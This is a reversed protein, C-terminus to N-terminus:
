GPVPPDAAILGERELADRFAVPIRETMSAANRL